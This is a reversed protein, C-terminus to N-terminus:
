KKKGTKKKAAAKKKVAKKAKPKPSTEEMVFKSVTMEPGEEEPGLGLPVAEDEEQKRSRYALELIAPLLTLAILLCAAIGITAVKGISHLGRQNALLLASWGVLTTLTSAIVAPGVMAMAKVIDHDERFRYYIYIGNQIGYGIIVPFVLVNMFNLKLDIIAMIGVTAVLGLLLPILSLLAPLFARYFLILVIIVLVLTIFFAAVGERKVIMILQAFLMLSGATDTQFTYSRAQAIDKYPRHELIMDVTGPLIKISLLKEKSYTNLANLLTKTEAPSYNEKVPDIESEKQTGTSYLITNLTRRSIKPVELRGIAAFFELLKGGHWLAVKPYLFLLHGKEKSSAVEKFQSSFYDPVATYDYPKVSLFLKAKPLYKRQEPKLFSAKVPKMDKALQDLVKRNELQQSYPPVFNWLSVVQDVSGAISEPVPNLHDFVAESEELSKVVIAQPDSSIDFRDAIEDYLNVSELNEVLLNRGNVDFQVKPAFIGFILVLILVIISLIGPKSYFKRLLGSPTQQDENLLFAKSLSPFWKLLLAIQLATVGYMAIAIMVIGYTAIIGFESFGRFESFSLVVFASTTTLASSFSAIGTHYITDKIARVIDQKKTFEERFRYLFQIGYDIGLGMLISGIISTISNLQGIVLGTLGFTMLLGSLLSFLLIVIFLPNRFFLLLLLGIGLFSAIGIPKLAKILTEYDDQNLKYAGTYGAYIGDKELGLTKVLGQVKTDIKELFEIDVFSGTPKILVILMGKEPSINYEDFIDRKALKQYKSIIDTFDPNYEENTLKIFFPNAKEIEDDIKRKVRKRVEKLDETKLFLPLRDQLFSVNYRYSVYRVLEKDKLVETALKDSARKLAIEKSKYYAINKRKAEDALELEKKQTEPDGNRKAQFAKTLHETMGKDDKFKLAVTYFGSGGIMEIVRKTQVVSPNDSPLLQLNDSNISLRTALVASIVLFIFLIASSAAPKTLVLETAKSLLKRM